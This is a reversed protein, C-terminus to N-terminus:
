VPKTEKFFSFAIIGIILGCIPISFASQYAALPYINAASPLYSSIVVGMVYQYFAGGSFLFINLAGVATGGFSTEYIEQACAFCSVFSGGTLGYVGFLVYLAGVTLSEAFLILPIYCLTHLLCGWLLVKKRSKLVKDSIYGALPCGIVMGLPFMMLISGVVSKSLGYINQMYPGAWLSGVGMFSGYYSFLLIGLLYMKKNGFVTKISENLSVKHTGNNKRLLPFGLENPQNRIVIYAIGSAIFTLIAIVVFSNRWGINGMIFLLPTTSILAGVNGVGLLLGSYTGLQDSNYWDAMIRMAAVYVVGVGFGVIFRGAAMIEVNQALSFILGGIGALFVFAAITKRSGWSDALLGAPLATLAYAGFYMSGILGMDSPAISLERMIEPGVVAPAARHFYSLVYTVSIALFIWLRYRKMNKILVEGNMIKNNETSM